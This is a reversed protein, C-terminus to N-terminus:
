TAFSRLAETLVNLESTSFLYIEDAFNKVEQRQVKGSPTLPIYDIFHFGSRLKEPDSVQDNILKEIKASSLADANPSEEIFAFVIDNGSEDPVGRRM